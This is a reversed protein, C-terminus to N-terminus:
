PNNRMPLRILVTFQGGDIHKEFSYDSGYTLALRSKVNKLGVQTGSTNSGPKFSNSVTLIWHNQDQQASLNIFGAESNPSIGHKIANEILTLLTLTPLPHDWLQENVNQSVQLREELRIQEIKLYQECVQWEEQLSSQVRLHAQLHTRFLESLETVTDAAKEQDEFILARISNFTNFLFHPSLQNTLQQIQAEQVQQQLVKRAKHQHYIMYIVAWGAFITFGNLIGLTWIMTDSFVADIEGKDNVIQMKHVDTDAFLPIKGLGYALAFSIFSIFLLFLALNFLLKPNLPRNILKLKLYPRIALHCLLIYNLSDIATRLTYLLKQQPSSLEFTSMLSQLVIFIIISSITFTLWYAKSAHSIIYWYNDTSQHSHIIPAM